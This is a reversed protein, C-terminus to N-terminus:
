QVSGDARLIHGHIPCRALVEQPNIARDDTVFPAPGGRHDDLRWFGARKPEVSPSTGCFTEDLVEAVTLERRRALPHKTAVLVVRPESRLEQIHIDQHATPSYCLAVDVDALWRSPSGCPFTLERFSATVDPHAAAFAAFLDPADVMPPSGIFGWEIAGNATRALSRATRKADELAALM